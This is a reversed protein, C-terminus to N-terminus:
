SESDEPPRHKPHKEVYIKSIIEKLDDYVPSNGNANNALSNVLSEFKNELNFIRHELSAVVHELSM